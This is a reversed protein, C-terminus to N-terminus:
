LVHGLLYWLAALLLLLPLCAVWFTGAVCLVTYGLYELIMVLATLLITTLVAKSLQKGIINNFFFAYIAGFIPNAVTLIAGLLVNLVGLLLMVVLIGLLIVPAYTALSIPVYTAILWCSLIHLGMSLIVTVFRLLYWSIIGKGKPIVTDLLNVLFALIVMSLVEACIAAFDGNWFPFLVLYEGSFSVYPLPSLYQALNYPDFTYILVSAVVMFLIGMASSVAHNLSSRRGFIARGILGGLLGAGAFFILFWLMHMWDLQAPICSALEEQSPLYSALASLSDEASSIVDEVTELIDDFHIIPTYM